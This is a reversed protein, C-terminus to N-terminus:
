GRERINGEMRAANLRRMMEGGGGEARSSHGSGSFAHLIPRSHVGKKALLIPWFVLRVGENELLIPRSIFLVPGIKLLLAEFVFDMAAIKSHVGEKKSRM